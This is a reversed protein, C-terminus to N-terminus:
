EASAAADHTTTFDFKFCKKACEDLYELKMKDTYYAGDEYGRVLNQQEQARLEFDSKRNPARKDKSM